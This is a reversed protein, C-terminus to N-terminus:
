SVRIDDAGNGAVTSIIGLVSVKRIHVNDVIFFSGDAAVTVDSPATLAASTAPGGDGSYGGSGYSGAVSTIIGATSIMRILDDGADAIYLNGKRDVALGTPHNLYAASAPGGDGNLPTYAPTAGAIATVVGAASARLVRSNDWDSIYLNGSADVALGGVHGLAVGPVSTITGTTSVERISHYSQDDGIYLNGTADVAPWQPSVLQANTALGGDGSVGSVGNGAVTTIIGTSSVKRVRANGSDAIYLNGSADLAM